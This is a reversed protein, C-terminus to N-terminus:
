LEHREEADLITPAESVEREDWAGYQFITDADVIRGHGKPIQIAKTDSVFELEYCEGKEARMVSCRGSSFIEIMVSKGEEPLDIGELILSM